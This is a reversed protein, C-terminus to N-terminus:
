GNQGEAEIQAILSDAMAEELGKYGWEELRIDWWLKGFEFTALLRKAASNSIVEGGLEAHSVNGTNYRDVRLGYRRAMNNFYVRHLKGDPTQWERGGAKIARELDMKAEKQIDMHMAYCVVAMNDLPAARSM